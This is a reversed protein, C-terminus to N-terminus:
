ILFNHFHQQGGKRGEQEEQKEVVLHHLSGPFEIGLGEDVGSLETCDHTLRKECKSNQRDVM